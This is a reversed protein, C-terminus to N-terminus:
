ILAVVEDAMASLLLCLRNSVLSNGGGVFPTNLVLIHSNFTM